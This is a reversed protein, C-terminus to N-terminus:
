PVLDNHSGFGFDLDTSDPAGPHQMETELLAFLMPWLPNLWETAETLIDFLPNNEIGEDSIDAFLLPDEDDWIDDVASLVVPPLDSPLQRLRQALDRLNTVQEDDLVGLESGLEAADDFLLALQLSDTEEVETESIDVPGFLVSGLDTDFWEGQLERKLLRQAVRGGIPAIVFGGEAVRSELWKPLHPLSGSVLVRNLPSPLNPPAHDLQRMKRVHFTLESEFNNLCEKVHNIVQRNPDVVTVSGSPGVIHGILASIYGGKAGILLVEDGEELELHHLLTCIMHPASITKVGGGDTETFVIPRDHYFLESDYDTFWEVKITSMADRISQNLPINAAELREILGSIDGVIYRCVGCVFPQPTAHNM